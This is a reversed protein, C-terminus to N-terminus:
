GAEPQWDRAFRSTAANYPVGAAELGQMFGELREHPAHWAAPGNIFGIRRRGLSTLHDVALRAGGTEDAKICPVTTDSTDQYLYVYPVHGLPLAPAARSRLGSGSMLIVGDVQLDLLRRLHEREREVDGYSNCLFVGVGETAAADEVGRMMPGTFIGDIDGTLIGITRSRRSRLGRAVANPRYGLREITTLVRDRLDSTVDPKDNLVRSVSATSVGAASAVDSITVRGTM